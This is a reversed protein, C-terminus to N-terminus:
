EILSDLYEKTKLVQGGRYNAQSDPIMFSKRILSQTLKQRRSRTIVLMREWFQDWKKKSRILIRFLEDPTSVKERRCENRIFLEWTPNYRWMRRLLGYEDVQKKDYDEQRKKWLRNYINRTKLELIKTKLELQRVKDEEQLQQIEQRNSIIKRPEPKLYQKYDVRYRINLPLTQLFNKRVNEIRLETDFSINREKSHIVVPGFYEVAPILTQTYFEYLLRVEKSYSYFEIPLRGMLCIYITMGLSFLEYQILQERTFQIDDSTSTLILHLIEPSVYVLTGSVGQCISTDCALGFDVLKLENKRTNVMVNDPKIDRHVIGRGHLWEVANVLLPLRDTLISSDKLDLLSVWGEDAFLGQMTYYSQQPVWDYVNIINPHAQRLKQLIHFQNELDQGKKLVIRKGSVDVTQYVKGFGGQGLLKM